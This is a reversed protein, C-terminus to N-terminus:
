LFKNTFTKYLFVILLFYIYLLSPLNPISVPDFDSSDVIVMQTSNLCPIWYSGLFSYFLPWRYPMLGFASFHFSVPSGSTYTQEPLSFFISILPWLHCYCFVSGILCVSTRLFYVSGEWTGKKMWGLYLGITWSSLYWIYGLQNKGKQNAPGCALWRHFCGVYVGLVALCKRILDLYCIM